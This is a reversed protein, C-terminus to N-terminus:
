IAAGALQTDSEEAYCVTVEATKEKIPVVNHRHNNIDDDNDLPTTTNNHLTPKTSLSESPPNLFM